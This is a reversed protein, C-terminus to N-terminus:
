SRDASAREARRGEREGDVAPAEAGAQPEAEDEAQGEEHRQEGPGAGVDARDRPEGEGQHLRRKRARSPPAVASVERSGNQGSHVAASQTASSSSRPRTGKPPKGQPRSPNLWVSPGSIDSAAYPPTGSTLKATARVPASSAAATGGQAAQRLAEAGGGARRAPPLPRGDAGGRERDGGHQGHGSTPPSAQSGSGPRDSVSPPGVDVTATIWPM